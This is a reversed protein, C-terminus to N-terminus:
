ERVKKLRLLFGKETLDERIAKNLNAALGINRKCKGPKIKRKISIM